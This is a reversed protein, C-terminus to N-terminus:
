REVLFQSSTAVLYVAERARAAPDAIGSLVGTLISQMDSSMTGHLMVDNLYTVLEEATLPELSSLNLRTGTPRDANPPIGRIIVREAFNIRALATQTSHIAFEPGLLGEGPIVYDPPFFNFVTPSYYVDQDMRITPTIGAALFREGLVFDTETSTTNTARLLNTIWLVPEKLKGFSENPAVDGRAEPDLLIAKLVAKMDGRVGAGNDNFAAVVRTMYDPSPNSTVLHQILNRSIYVGVSPYNIINDLVVQLEADAAQGAPSTVCAYYDDISLGSVWQGAEDQMCNLLGKETRDHLTVPTAPEMESFYDQIGPAPNPLRFRWGTLAKTVERVIDNEYTSYRDTGGCSGGPAWLTGDNCLKDLGISFLQLVERAYNENPMAARNDVNDLYRGMGPNVSIEYLLDRYNGFANRDLVQLYPLMRQPLRLPNELASIVVIQNLAFAVRQRLQDSMVDRNLANEFFWRQLPWMTYNLRNCLTGGGCGGPQAQPCYRGMVTPCGAPDSFTDPYERTPLNFQEELWADFGISQVYNILDENPGFTAQELFRITDARTPTGNCQEQPPAASLTAAGTFILLGCLGLAVILRACVRRLESRVVKGEM